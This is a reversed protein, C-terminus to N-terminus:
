ENRAEVFGARHSLHAGTERVDGTGELARHQVGDIFVADLFEVNADARHINAGEPFNGFAFLDSGLLREDDDAVPAIDLLTADLDADAREDDAAGMFDLGLDDLESALVTDAQKGARMVRGGGRPEDAGSGRD